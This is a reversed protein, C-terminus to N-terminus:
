MLGWQSWSRSSLFGIKKCSVRAWSLADGYWTQHCFNWCNLLYQKSSCESSNKVKETVKVQFVVTCGLRKVLCNVKHHQLLFSLKTAFPDATWIICIFFLWIKMINNKVTVNVKFVALWDKQCVIQSMIICWWVLNPLLLNLLESSIMHVFMWQCKSIKSHSQGQVCCDLKEMICEPKHYHVITFSWCNLLYLLCQWIKIM